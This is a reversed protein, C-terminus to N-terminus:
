TVTTSKTEEALDVEELVTLVPSQARHLQEILRILLLDRALQWDLYEDEEALEFISVFVDFEVLPNPDLTQAQEAARMLAKRVRWYENGKARYLDGFLRRDSTKQIYDALRDGLIRINDIRSQKMNMMRKLFLATLEWSLLDGERFTNYEARPDKKLAKLPRRLIYTRLFRAANDPLTFLDEYLLNHRTIKPKPQQMEESPSKTEAWANKVIRDWAEKYRYGNSVTWIFNVVQSPLPYIDIRADQGANSFHYATVSPTVRRGSDEAEKEIESLEGQMKSLQQILYTKFSSFNPMGALEAVSFFQRNRIMNQKAFEITLQPDDSIVALLRGQSVLCGLPMAHIALLAIGSIPIGKAGIPGFNIVERGNLLPFMERTARIYAPGGTFVCMEGDLTSRDVHYGRLVRDAYEQKKHRFEPKDFAPQGFGSNPFIIGSVFNKGIGDSYIKELYDAIEDLDQVTVQSPDEKDAFTTIVAIGVDILPHHTYSLM